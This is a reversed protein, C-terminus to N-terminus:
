PDHPFGGDGPKPFVPAYCQTEYTTRFPALVEYVDGNFTPFDCFRTCQLLVKTLDFEAQKWLQSGYYKEGPSRIGFPVSFSFATAAGAVVSEYDAHLLFPSDWALGLYYAPQAAVRHFEPLQSLPLPSPLAATRFVVNQAGPDSPSCYSFADEFAPTILENNFFTVVGFESAFNQSVATHEPATFTLKKMTGAEAASYKAIFDLFQKRSPLLPLQNFKFPGLMIDPFDPLLACAQTLPTATTITAPCWLVLPKLEPRTVGGGYSDFVVAGVARPTAKDREPVLVTQLADSLTSALKGTEDDHHLALTLVVDLGQPRALDIATKFQTALSDAFNPQQWGDICIVPAGTLLLRNEQMALHEASITRNCIKLMFGVASVSKVPSRLVPFAPKVYPNKRAVAVADFTGKADTVTSRGCVTTENSASVPLERDSFSARENTSVVAWGLPRGVCDPVAYWYPNDLGAAPVDGTFMDAVTFKRRLGLEQVQENHLNPFTHRARWQVHLNPEDFVGYVALSRNTYAPGSSVVTLAVNATLALSGKPHYRLRLGVERPVNPVKLSWSGCRNYAGCDVPVHTHVPTLAEVPTWPVLETDTRYSLEMLSVPEIGQEAQARYFIFLTQEDEFWVADALSFSANIDTLPVKDCAAFGALTVSLSAM